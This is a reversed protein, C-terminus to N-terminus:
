RSKGLLWASSILGSVSKLQLSNFLLFIIAFIFTYGPINIFVFHSLFHGRSYGPIHLAGWSRLDGTPPLGV